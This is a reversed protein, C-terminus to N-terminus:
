RKHMNKLRFALDIADTLSKDGEKVARKKAYMLYQKKIDGKDTFAKKGYLRRLYYRLRDPKKVAKQIWDKSKKVM